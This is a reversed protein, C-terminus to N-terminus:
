SDWSHCYPAPELVPPIEADIGDVGEPAAFRQKFTFAHPTPGHAQLHALRAMAEEVTPKTGVPVWWLVQFAQTPRSFWERRRAMVATHATKYVYEFLTEASEWVSMNVILNPDSENRIDTANGSESQLRWVFGPAADALANIEDLKAVFDALLPTDLPALAHAVNLQALHHRPSTM